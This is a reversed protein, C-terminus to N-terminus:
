KIADNTTVEEWCDSHGMLENINYFSLGIKISRIDEEFQKINVVNIREKNHIVQEEKMKYWVMMKLLGAQQQVHGWDGLMDYFIEHPIHKERYKQFEERRIIDQAERIITAVESMAIIMEVNSNGVDKIGNKIKVFGYRVCMDFTFRRNVATDTRLSFMLCNPCSMIDKFTRKVKKIHHKCVPCHVDHM